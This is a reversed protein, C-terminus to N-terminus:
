MVTNTRIQAVRGCFVEFCKLQPRNDYGMTLLMFGNHTLRYAISKVKAKFNNIYFYPEEIFLESIDKIEFGNFNANKGFGEFKLEELTEIVQAIIVNIDRLVNYHKKNFHSAVDISTCTITEDDNISINPMWSDLPNKNSNEKLAASIALTTHKKM